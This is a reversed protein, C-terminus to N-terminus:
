PRPAKKRGEGWYAKCRIQAEPVGMELLRSRLARVSAVHGSLYFAGAGELAPLGDLWHLLAEGRRQGRVAADLPLGLATLARENRAHMEVAGLLPAGAPLRDALAAWLGLTSEDGLFVAWDRDPGLRLSQKPGLVVVSDGPQARRSWPAAM